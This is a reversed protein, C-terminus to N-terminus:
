TKNRRAEWMMKAGMSMKERQEKPIIKGKHTDSIKKRAEESLTDGRMKRREWAAKLKKKTEESHKRGKAAFALKQITEESFTRGKYKESIYKKHADTHKRGYMPSRGALRINYGNKISNYYLIWYEERQNLINMDEVCEELIVKDFADYGYKKLARYIKKQYECHMLKYANNWRHHIDISQGIYWKDNVKNRLGYIGVIKKPTIDQSVPPESKILTKGTAECETHETANM